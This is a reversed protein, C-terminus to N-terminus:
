HDLLNNQVADDSPLAEDINLTKLKRTFNLPANVVQESSRSLESSMLIHFVEQSSIDRQGVVQHMVNRVFSRATSNDNVKGSMEKVINQVMISQKESKTVYKTIYNMTKRENETVSCDVNSRAYLLQLHNKQTKIQSTQLM